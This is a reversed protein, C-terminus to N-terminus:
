RLELRSGELSDDRLPACASSDHVEATAIRELAPLIARRRADLSRPIAAPAAGHFAFLLVNRRRRVAIRRERGRPVAHVRVADAGFAAVLGAHMACVWKSSPGELAGAANVVCVGRDRLHERCLRFFEETCLRAPMDNAGFVDIVIRDYPECAVQRELFTRGDAVHFVCRNSARLDFFATAVDFIRADVDAVDTYGNPYLHLFQRVGIAAGCGLFLARPEDNGDGGYLHLGDVYPLRSLLPDSRDVRAQLM